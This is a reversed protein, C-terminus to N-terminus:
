VCEHACDVPTKRCRGVVVTGHQQTPVLFHDFESSLTDNDSHETMATLHTVFFRAIIPDLADCHVRFGSAVM